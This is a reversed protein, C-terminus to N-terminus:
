SVYAVAEFKGSSLEHWQFFMAANEIPTPSFPDKLNSFALYISATGSKRKFEYASLVQDPEIEFGALVGQADSLAHTVSKFRKNGDFGAEHLAENVLVREEHNLMVGDDPKSRSRKPM